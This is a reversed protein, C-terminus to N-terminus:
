PRSGRWVDKWSFVPVFPNPLNPKIIEVIAEDHDRENSAIVIFPDMMKKMSEHPLVPVGLVDRGIRKPSSDVCAIVNHGSKRADMVLLYAAFMSGFVVVNQPRLDGLLTRGENLAQLWRWYASGLPGEQPYVVDFSPAIRCQVSDTIGSLVGFVAAPIESQSTVGMGHSVHEWEKYSILGTGGNFLENQIQYKARAGFISVAEERLKPHQASLRVVADMLEFMVRSQDVNRSEQGPHQRYRLLPEAMIAVEGDMNARFLNLIDGSPFNDPNILGEPGDTARLFSSKHHLYTPTPLWMKEDLYAKLYEKPRFLRDEEMAYLRDQIKVGSKDVISVNSALTIVNPHDALYGVMKEVMTPEMIDDDHTILVEECKSMRLASCHNFSPNMGAPHRVYTIRPDADQANSVMDAVEPHSNNDCVLIEINQFTQCRAAWLSEKLFDLRDHTLIAVTLEPKNM